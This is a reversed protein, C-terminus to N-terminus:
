WNVAAARIEELKGKVIVLLPLPLPVIVLLGTARSQPFIQVAEKEVSLGIVREALAAGPEIKEPQPPAQVPVPEHTTAREVEEAETLAVKADLGGGGLEKLTVKAPSPLPVTVPPTDQELPVHEPVNECPDLTVSVAAGLLPLVNAPQPPAQVPVPEHTTAREVEEAETLAVKADLGGGGLAKLTVKVPSPLPLTVLLGDPNVQEPPVQLAENGWPVITVRVDVV